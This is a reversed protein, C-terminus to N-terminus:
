MFVVPTELATFSESGEPPVNSLFKKKLALLVREELLFSCGLIFERVCVM